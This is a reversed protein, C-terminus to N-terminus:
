LDSGLELLFRQPAPDDFVGLRSEAAAHRRVQKAIAGRSRDSDVIGLVDAISGENEAMRSVPHGFLMVIV